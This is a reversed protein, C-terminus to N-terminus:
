HFSPANAPDSETDGGKLRTGKAWESAAKDKAAQSESYNANNNFDVNNNIASSTDPTPNITPNTSNPTSPSPAAPTSPPAESSPQEAIVAGPYIAQLAEEFSLANNNVLETILAQHDEPINAEIMMQKQEPTVKNAAPNTKNDASPSSSATSPTSSVDSNDAIKEPVSSSASAPAPSAINTTQPETTQIDSKSMNLGATLVAAIVVIGFGLAIKKNM